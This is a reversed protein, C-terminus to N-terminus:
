AEPAPIMGAHWACPDVTQDDQDEEMYEAQHAIVERVFQKTSAEKEMRKCIEPRCYSCADAHGKNTGKGGRKCKPPPSESRNRARFHGPNAIADADKRGREIPEDAKIPKEDKIPIEPEEKVPKPQNPPPLLDGSGAVEKIQREWKEKKLTIRKEAGRTDKVSTPDFAM